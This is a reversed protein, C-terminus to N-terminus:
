MQKKHGRGRIREPTRNSKKFAEALKRSAEAAEAVSAGLDAIAQFPNSQMKKHIITLIAIFHKEVQIYEERPMEARLNDLGKYLTNLQEQTM